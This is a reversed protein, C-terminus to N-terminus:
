DRFLKPNLIQVYWVPGVLDSVSLIGSPRFKELLSREEWPKWKVKNGYKWGVNPPKFGPTPTTRTSPGPKPAEQVAQVPPPPELNPTPTVVNLQLNV